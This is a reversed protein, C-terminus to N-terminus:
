AIIKDIMAKLEPDLPGGRKQPRRKEEETMKEGMMEEFLRILEPSMLEEDDQTNQQELRKIRRESKTM